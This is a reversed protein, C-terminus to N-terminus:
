IKTFLVMTVATIGGYVICMMTVKGILARCLMPNKPQPTAIQNVLFHLSFLLVYLQYFLKKQKM